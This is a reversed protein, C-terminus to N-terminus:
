DEGTEKTAAQTGRRRRAAEMLSYLWPEEKIRRKVRFTTGIALAALRGVPTVGLLGDHLPDTDVCFRTKYSAAGTGFDVSTCGRAIVDAIMAQMLAIGPSDKEVAGGAISNFMASARGGAIAVGLTAMPRGALTGAYLDIAAEGGDVACASELFARTSPEDFINRIGKEAFRYAKQAFFADLVSRREEATEARFFRVCGAAELHRLKKRDKARTNKSVRLRYLEDYPLHLSGSYAFSPSPQSSPLLFPNPRGAWNEPQRRLVFLDPSAEARIRDLLRHLDTVGLRDFADAAFVPMNYNAHEGGLYEVCRLASRRRLGFPLLVLPEGACDHGTVILPEVREAPAVHRVWAALLDFKQHPTTVGVAELRRWIPAADEIRRHVRIEHVAPAGGIAPAATSISQRLAIMPM